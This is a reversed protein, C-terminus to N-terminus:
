RWEASSVLLAAAWPGFAVPLVPETPGALVSM